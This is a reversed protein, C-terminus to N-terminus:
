LPVSQETEDARGAQSENDRGLYAHHRHLLVYPRNHCGRAISLDDSNPDFIVGTRVCVVAIMDAQNPVHPAGARRGATTMKRACLDAAGTRGCYSM